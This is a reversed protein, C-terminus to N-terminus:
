IHHIAKVRNLLASLDAGSYRQSGPGLPDEFHQGMLVRLTAAVSYALAQYNYGGELCFVIKGGCLESAISALEEVLQGYGTVSLQMGGIPDSWHADYGASVAILEPSFRSALPRLIEKFVRAYGEDGVGGPLPVNVTYGEGDGEGIEDVGGSGPYFPHQHVSFYLVSDDMWFSSQTGNGHHVDFDVILVRKLGRQMQALRTAIAVNNFLCFGMGRSALAHHGPPRVLAFAAKSAGDLVRNVALNAGGVAMLAAEYSKPSVYTDPDLYGGGTEAVRRVHVIYSTSHVTAVEQVTAPQPELIGITDLIGTERLVRMTAELRGANEPHPGTNHELYIPSYILSVSLM